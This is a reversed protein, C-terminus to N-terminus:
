LPTIHFLHFKLNTLARLYKRLKDNGNKGTVKGSITGTQAFVSPIFFSFLILFTFKKMTFNSSM